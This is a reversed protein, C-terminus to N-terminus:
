AHAGHEIELLTVARAFRDDKLQRCAHLATRALSVRRYLSVRRAPHPGPLARIATTGGYGDLFAATLQPVLTGNDRDPGKATLMALCALFRGIDLAPDAWCVGDLDTVGRTGDGLLVQSPTFDGHSLVPEASEPLEGLSVPLRRRVRDAWEPWVGAVAHLERRLAAIEQTPRRRPAAIGQRLHLWVLVRGCDRVADVLAAGASEGSPALLGPVRPSGPLAETLLLRLGANYSVPVPLRVDTQRADLDADGADRLACLRSWAARGTADDGYVKGYLSTGPANTAGTDYRLVCAGERPHHVVEIDLGRGGSPLLRLVSPPDMAWGLTPLEPDLPFPHLAVGTGPVVVSRSRWLPTAPQPSRTAVPLVQSVVYEVAADDDPHVRGLVTQRGSRVDADAALRVDYRLTCTGDERLWVKGVSVQEVETGHALLLHVQEAAYNEELAAALGPLARRLGEALPSTPAQVPPVRTM